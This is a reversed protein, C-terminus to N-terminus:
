LNSLIFAKISERLYEIDAPNQRNEYTFLVDRHPLFGSDIYSKFKKINKGTYGIDGIMGFHEHFLYTGIEPIYPVADVSVKEGNPLIIPVHFKCTIHLEEYLQGMVMETKSDYERGNNKIINANEFTNPEEEFKDFSGFVSELRKAHTNAKFSFLEREFEYNNHNEKWYARLTRIESLLAERRYHDSAMLTGIKTGSKHKKRVSDKYYIGNKTAWKHVVPLKSLEDELRIIKLGLFKDMGYFQNM